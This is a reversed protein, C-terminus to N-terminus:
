GVSHEGPEPGLIFRRGSVEGPTIEVYNYKLTPVWSRLPLADAAAVEDHRILRRALGHVVVSWASEEEVHDAEFVVQDNLTLQFLKTGEATRFYVRGDHTIYNVPFIDPRGEHTVVLRGLHETGLLALSEDSDLVIVPGETSRGPESVTKSTADIQDNM